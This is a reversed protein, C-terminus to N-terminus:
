PFPLLGRIYKSKTARSQRKQSELTDTFESTVDSFMSLGQHRHLLVTKDTGTEGVGMEGPLCFQYFETGM